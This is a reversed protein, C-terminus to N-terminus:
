PVGDPDHSTRSSSLPADQKLISCTAELFTKESPKHIWLGSVALM